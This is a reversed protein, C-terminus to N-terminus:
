RPVVERDEGEGVLIHRKRPRTIYIYIYIKKERDPAAIDVMIGANRTNVVANIAVIM